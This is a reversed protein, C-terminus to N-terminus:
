LYLPYFFAGGGEGWWKYGLDRVESWSCYRILFFPDYIPECFEQGCISSSSRRVSREKEPKVKKTTKSMFLSIPSKTRNEFLFVFFIIFLKSTLFSPSSASVHCKTRCKSGIKFPITPLVFLEQEKEPSSPLKLPNQSKVKELSYPTAKQTRIQLFFKKLLIM